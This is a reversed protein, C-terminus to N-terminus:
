SKEYLQIIYRFVNIDPCYITMTKIGNHELMCLKKLEECYSIRCNDRSYYKWVPTNATQVGKTFGEAVIQAEDLDKVRYLDPFSAIQSFDRTKVPMWQGEQLQVEGEFHPLIM